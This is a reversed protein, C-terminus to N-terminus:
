LITMLRLARDEFLMKYNYEIERPTIVDGTAIDISLNVKIGDFIAVLNYKLGGYNDEERIPNFNKITFTVNDEINISLIETLVEYLEEDTLDIWKICTTTRTNIGM